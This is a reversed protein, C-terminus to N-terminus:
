GKSTRNKRSELEVTCERDVGMKVSDFVNREGISDQASEIEVMRVHCTTDRYNSRGRVIPMCTPTGSVNGEAGFKFIGILDSVVGVWLHSAISSAMNMRHSTMPWGM